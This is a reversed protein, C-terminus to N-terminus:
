IEGIPKANPKSHGKGWIRRLDRKARQSTRKGIPRAEPKVDPRNAFERYRDVNAPISTEEEEARGARRDRRKDMQSMRKEKPKAGDTRHMQRQPYDSMAQKLADRSMISSELLYERFTLM